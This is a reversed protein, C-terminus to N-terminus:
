HRVSAPPPAAGGEGSEAEFERKCAAKADAEEAVLLARAEALLAPLSPALVTVLAREAAVCRAQADAARIELRVVHLSTGHERM